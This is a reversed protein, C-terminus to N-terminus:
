MPAHSGPRLAPEDLAEDDLVPADWHSRWRAIREPDPEVGYAAWFAPEADALGNWELSWSAIALDSWPDGLGLRGLDVIGVLAGDRILTNPACPDGHCIVSATPAGATAPETASATWDPAPFPCDTAPLSHLLLLGTGLAAAAREPDRRGHASVLSDGPLAATVLVEGSADIRLELVEPVALEALPLAGEHMGPRSAVLRALWRMREAEGALSETSGAPNWKAFVSGSPRDIRATIGGVENQWVLEVPHHEALRAIPPPVPTGAPPPAALDSQM